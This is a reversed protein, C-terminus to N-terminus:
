ATAHAAFNRAISLNDATDLNSLVVISLNDAPRIENYAGFGPV